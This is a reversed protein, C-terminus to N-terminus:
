CWLDVDCGGELTFSSWVNGGARCRVRNSVIKCGGFAVDVGGCPRFATGNHM